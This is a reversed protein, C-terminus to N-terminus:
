REFGFSYIFFYNYTYFKFGHEQEKHFPVLRKLATNM